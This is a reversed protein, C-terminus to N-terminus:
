AKQRSWWRRSELTWAARTNLDYHVSAFRLGAVVAVTSWGALQEDLQLGRRM